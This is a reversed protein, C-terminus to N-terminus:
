KTESFLILFDHSKSEGGIGDSFVKLQQSFTQNVITTKWFKIKAYSNSGRGRSTVSISDLAKCALV